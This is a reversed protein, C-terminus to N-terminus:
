AIVKGAVPMGLNFGYSFTQVPSHHNVYDAAQAFFLSDSNMSGPIYAKAIRYDLGVGFKGFGLDRNVSTFAGAGERELTPWLWERAGPLVARGPACWAWAM